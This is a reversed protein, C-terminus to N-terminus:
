RGIGQVPTLQRSVEKTWSQQQTFLHRAMPTTSFFQQVRVALERDADDASAALANHVHAWAEMVARITEERTALKTTDRPRREQGREAMKVRAIPKGARIQGHTQRRTAQVEIGRDRFAKALTQRWRHLDPKRPNLRRFDRGEGRVVIHLHPNDQHDHFTWVWKHGEFEKTAFEVVAAIIKDDPAVGKPLGAEIHFAERLWSEKEPIPTGEWKYEDGLLQVDAPGQWQRAQGDECGGENIPLRYKDTIYRLVRRLNPMAKPTSMIKVVVQPGGKVTYRIQARVSAATPKRGGRMKPLKLDKPGRKPRVEDPYLVSGWEILVNDVVPRRAANPLTM